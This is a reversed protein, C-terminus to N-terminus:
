SALSTTVLVAAKRMVKFAGGHPHNASKERSKAVEASPKMAGFALKCFM